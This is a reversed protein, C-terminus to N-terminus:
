FGASHTPPREPPPLYLSAPTTEPAPAVADVQQLGVTFCDFLGAFEYTASVLRNSPPQKSLCCLQQSDGSSSPPSAQSSAKERSFTECSLPQPQDIAAPGAHDAAPTHHLLHEGSAGGGASALCHFYCALPPGLSLNLVILIAGIAPFSGPRWIIRKDTRM